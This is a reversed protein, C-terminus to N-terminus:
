PRRREVEELDVGPQLDLVADGFHDGADVQHLPHQAHRGAFRRRQVAVGERRLPMRHLHTEVGLVGALLELGAGAQQVLDDERLIQPDVGPDLGAAFHRGIVIRHQGLEDRVAGRALLRQLPEAGSQGFCLDVADLGIEVVQALDDGVLHEGFPPLVGAIEAMEVEPRAGDVHEDGPM